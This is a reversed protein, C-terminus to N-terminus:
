RIGNSGIPNLKRGKGEAFSRKGKAKGKSEGKGGCSINDVKEDILEALFDFRRKGKGKDKGKGKKRVFRRVKRTPKGM